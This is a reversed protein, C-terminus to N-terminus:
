RVVEVDNVLRQTAAYARLLDMAAQQAIQKQYYSRVIGHLRVTEGDLTARLTRLPPYASKEFEENLAGEIRLATDRDEDSRDADHRDDFRRGEFEEPLSREDLLRGQTPPGGTRGLVAM